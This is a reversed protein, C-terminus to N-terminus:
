VIRRVLVISFRTVPESVPRVVPYCHPQHLSGFSARQERRGLFYSSFGAHIEPPPPSHAVQLHGVFVSKVWRGDGAMKPDWM